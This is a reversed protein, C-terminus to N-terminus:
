RYNKENFSRNQYKQSFEKYDQTSFPVNILFEKEINKVIKRTNQINVKM